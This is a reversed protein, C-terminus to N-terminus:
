GPSGAVRPVRGGPEGLRDRVRVRARAATGPYAPLEPRSGNGHAARGGDAGRDVAAEVGGDPGRVALPRPPGRGGYHGHARWRVWGRLRGRPGLRRAPGPGM